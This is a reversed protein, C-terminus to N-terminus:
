YDNSADFKFPSFDETNINLQDRLILKPLQPKDNDEDFESNQVYFFSLYNKNCRFHKSIFIITVRMPYIALNIMNWDYYYISVNLKKM